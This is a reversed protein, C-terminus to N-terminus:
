TEKRGDLAAAIRENLKTIGNASIHDRQERADMHWRQLAWAILPDRLLALAEDLDDLVPLLSRTALEAITGVRQALTPLNCANRYEARISDRQAKTTKM